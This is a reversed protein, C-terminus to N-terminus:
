ARNYKCYPIKEISEGILDEAEKESRLPVSECLLAGDDARLEVWYTGLDDASQSHKHNGNLPLTFAERCRM